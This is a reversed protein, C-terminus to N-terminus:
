EVHPRTLRQRSFAGSGMMVRAEPGSNRPAPARSVSTEERKEDETGGFFKLFSYTINRPDSSDEICVKTQHTGFDLGINIFESM